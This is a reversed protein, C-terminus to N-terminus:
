TFSRGNDATRSHVDTWPGHVDRTEVGEVIFCRDPSVSASAVTRISSSFCLAFVILDGRTASPEQDWLLYLLLFIVRRCRGIM